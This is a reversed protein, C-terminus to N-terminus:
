GDQCNRDQQIERLATYVGPEDCCGSGSAGGMFDVALGNLCDVNDSCTLCDDLGARRDSQTQLPAQKVAHRADESLLTVVDEGIGLLDLMVHLQEIPNKTAVRRVRLGASCPLNVIDPPPCRRLPPLFGQQERQEFPM